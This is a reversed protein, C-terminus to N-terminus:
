CILYGVNINEAEVLIKFITPCRRFLYHLFYTVTFMKYKRNMPNKNKKKKKVLLLVTYHLLTQLLPSKLSFFSVRIKSNKSNM